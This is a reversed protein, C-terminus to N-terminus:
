DFFSTDFIERLSMILRSLMVMELFHYMWNNLVRQIWVTASTDWANLDSFVIALVQQFFQVKETERSKRGSEVHMVTFNNEKTSFGITATIKMRIWLFTQLLFALDRLDHGSTLLDKREGFYDIKPYFNLGCTKTDKFMTSQPLSLYLKTRVLPPFFQGQYYGKSLVLFATCQM